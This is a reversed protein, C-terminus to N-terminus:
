SPTSSERLPYHTPSSSAEMFPAICYVRDLLICIYFKKTLISNSCKFTRQLLGLVKYAKGVIFEDHCHWSTDASFTIGLNRHSVNKSVKCGDISYPGGELVGSIPKFRISNCKAAKFFLHNIHSWNTLSDLDLQLLPIDSSNHIIKYCKADDAFLQVKSSAVAPPLDNIYILFLLLGLISGQPVGSIVLLPTCLYITILQFM